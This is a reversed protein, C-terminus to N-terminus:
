QVNRPDNPDPAELVYGEGLLPMDGDRGAAPVTPTGREEVFRRMKEMAEALGESGMVKMSKWLRDMAGSLRMARMDTRADFPQHELMLMRMGLQRYARRHLEDDTIPVDIGQRYLLTERNGYLSEIYFSDGGSYISLYDAWQHKSLADVNWFYHYYYRVAKSTLDRLRPAFRVLFEAADTANMHFAIQEVKERLGPYLFIREAETVDDPRYFYSEIGHRQLWPLVGPSLIAPPDPIPLLSERIPDLGSDGLPLFGRAKLLNDIEGNLRGEALLARIYYLAPSTM